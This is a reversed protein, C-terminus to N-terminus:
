RGDPRTMRAVRVDLARVVKGNCVGFHERPDDVVTPNSLIARYQTPQIPPTTPDAAKGPSMPSATHREEPPRTVHRRRSVGSSIVRLIGILICAGIFAVIISYILGGSSFGLLGMIFGGIFAGIIGIIIDGIIGYGGGRMVISALFGAVLGSLLWVLITFM